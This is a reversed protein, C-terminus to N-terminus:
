EFEYEFEDWNEERSTPLENDLSVDKIKNPLIEIIYNIIEKLLDKPLYYFYSNKDITALLILVVNKDYKLSSKNFSIKKLNDDSIKKLNDDSYKKLNDDSYSLTKYNFYRKLRQKYHDDM